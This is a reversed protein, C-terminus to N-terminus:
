HTVQEETTIELLLQQKRVMPILLALEGVAEIEILASLSKKLGLNGGSEIEILSELPLVLHRGAAAEMEFLISASKELGMRYSVTAELEILSSLPFVLKRVLEAEIEFSSSLPLQLHRGAEAEVEFNTIASKLLLIHLTGTAELEFLSSLSFGLKRGMSSETELSVIGPFGLKRGMSAETEVTTSAPLTLKRANYAEMEFSVSLSKDIDPLSHTVVLKPKYGNGKEVWYTWVRSNLSNGGRNPEIDDADYEFRAGIYTTGVKSISAIGTANYPFNNYGVSWAAYAIGSDCYPTDGFADYDGGVIENDNAPAVSYLNTVPTAANDDSKTGSHYVSFVAASITDGDPISATNMMYIGRAIAKWLSVTGSTFQSILSYDEVDNAVGGPDNRITSWATNDINQWLRGDEYVNAQSYFTSDTSVKFPYITDEDQFVELPIVEVDDDIAYSGLRFIGKEGTHNHVIRVEAGPSQQFVWREMFRSEIVRLWRKCYGYDWELVNNNYNSNIPDIALLVPGSVPQIEVGGVYLKPNWYVYRGALAGSFTDIVSALSIGGTNLVEGEFNNNGFYWKNTSPEFRPLIKSGDDFRVMPLGSIVQFHKGSLRDKYFKAMPHSASYDETFEVYAPYIRERKLHSLLVPDTTKRKPDTVKQVAM